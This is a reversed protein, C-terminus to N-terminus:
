AYFFGNQEDVLLELEGKLGGEFQGVRVDQGVLFILRV